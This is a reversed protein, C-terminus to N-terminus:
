FYVSLACLYIHTSLMLLINILQMALLQLQDKYEYNIIACTTVPQRELSLLSLILHESTNQIQAHTM